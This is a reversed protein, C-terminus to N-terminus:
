AWRGLNYEDLLPEFDAPSGMSSVSGVTNSRKRRGGGGGFRSAAMRGTGRAGMWAESRAGAALRGGPANFVTLKSGDGFVSHEPRAAPPYYGGPALAALALSRPTAAMASGGGVASSVAAMANVSPAATSGFFYRSRTTTRPSMAAAAAAMGDVMVYDGDIDPPTASLDAVDITARRAGIQAANDEQDRFLDDGHDDDYYHLTPELTTREAGKTRARRRRQGKAADPQLRRPMSHNTPHPLSRLSPYTATVVKTATNAVKLKPNKALEKEFRDIQEAM